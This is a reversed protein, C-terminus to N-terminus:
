SEGRYNSVLQGYIYTRLYYFIMDWNIEFTARMRVMRNIAELIPDTKVFWDNDIYYIILTNDEIRILAIYRDFLMNNRISFLISDIWKEKDLIDTTKNITATSKILPKDESM